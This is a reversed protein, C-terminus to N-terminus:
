TYAPRLPDARNPAAFICPVGGHLTGCPHRAVSSPGVKTKDARATKLEALTADLKRKEAEAAELSDRLPKLEKSITERRLMAQAVFTSGDLLTLRPAFSEHVNGLQNGNRAGRTCPVRQM